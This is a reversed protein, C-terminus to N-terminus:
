WYEVVDLRLTSGGEVFLKEADAGDVDEMLERMEDSAVWAERGMRAKRKDM